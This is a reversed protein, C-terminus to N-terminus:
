VSRKRRRMLGLGLLGTGLLLITGPEPVVPGGDYAGFHSVKGINEINGSNFGMAQFNIVAYSFSPINGFLFVDNPNGTNNGTKILFYEVNGTLAQAFVGAADTVDVWTGPENKYEFTVAFGLISEVWTKEADSGSSSLSVQGLLADVAVVDTMTLSWASVPAVVFALTLIVVQLYKNM